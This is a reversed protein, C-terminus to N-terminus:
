GCPGGGNLLQRSLEQAVWDLNGNARLVQRGAVADSLYGKKQGGVGFRGCGQFTFQKSSYSNSVDDLNALTTM